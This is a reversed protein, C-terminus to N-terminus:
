KENRKKKKIVVSGCFECYIGMPKMYMKCSPCIKM